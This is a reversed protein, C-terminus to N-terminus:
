AKGTGQMLVALAANARAQANALGGKPMSAVTSQMQAWLPALRNFASQAKAKGKQAGGALRQAGVTTANVKWANPDAAQLKQAMRGSAVAAATNMVYRQQADPAAALAMPNGTFGNIGAKYNAATQPNAMAAAWADAAQQATKTAM